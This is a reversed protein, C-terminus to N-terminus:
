QDKFSLFEVAATEVERGLENARERARQKARWVAMSARAMFLWGLAILPALGFWAIADNLSM